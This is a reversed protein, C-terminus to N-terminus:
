TIKRGVLVLRGNLISDDCTSLTILYDPFKPRIKTDYLSMKKINSIYNSYEQEKDTNYFKYYKFVKDNQNYVKSIFVSVIEYEEKSDLTEFTFNKHELYYNYDKYKKLSGFMTDDYTDHGHIILNIDRPLVTNYKDIFLSGNAYERHYFDHNLYYDDGSYMVPYDIKTNEIKLWGFLQSNQKSMRELITAGRSNIMPNLVEIKQPYHTIESTKLGYLVITLIILVVITIIKKLM